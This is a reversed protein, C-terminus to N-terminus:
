SAPIRRGMITRYYTISQTQPSVRLLRQASACRRQRPLPDGYRLLRYAIISDGRNAGRLALSLAGQRQTHIHRAPTWSSGSRFAPIEVWQIECSVFEDVVQFLSTV